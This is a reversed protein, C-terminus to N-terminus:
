NIHFDILQGLNNVEFKFLDILLSVELDEYTKFALIAFGDIVDEELLPSPEVLQPKDSSWEKSEKDKGGLNLGAIVPIVALADGNMKLPSKPPPLPYVLQKIAASQTTAITAAQAAVSVAVVATSTATTQVVAKKRRLPPQPRALPKKQDDDEDEGSDEPEHDVAVVDGGGRHSEREAQMRQARERRRISRKQDRYKQKQQQHKVDIEM